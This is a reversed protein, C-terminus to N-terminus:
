GLTEVSRSHWDKKTKQNVNQCSWRNKFKGLRINPYKNKLKEFDVPTHNKGRKVEATKGRGEEVASTQEGTLKKALNLPNFTAAVQQVSKKATSSGLEVLQEFTDEFLNGKAM